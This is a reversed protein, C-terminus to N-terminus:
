KSQRHPPAALDLAKHIRQIFPDKGWGGLDRGQNNIMELREAKQGDGTTFIDEVFTKVFEDVDITKQTV